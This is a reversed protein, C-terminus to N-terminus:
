SEGEVFAACGSRFSVVKGDFISRPSTCVGYDLFHGTGDLRVYFVCDNCAGPANPVVGEVSVAVVSRGVLEALGADLDPNSSSSGFVIESDTEFRWDWELM